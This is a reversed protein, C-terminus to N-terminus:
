TRGSRLTKEYDKQALSVGLASEAVLGGEVIFEVRHAEGGKTVV